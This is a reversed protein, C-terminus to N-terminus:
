VLTNSYNIIYAKPYLYQSYAALTVQLGNEAPFQYSGHHVLWTFTETDQMIQKYKRSKKERTIHKNTQGSKEAYICAQEPDYGITSNSQTQIPYTSRLCEIIRNEKERRIESTQHGRIKTTPSPIKWSSM